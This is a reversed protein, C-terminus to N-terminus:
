YYFLTVHLLQGSVAKLGWLAEESGGSTKNSCLRAWESIKKWRRRSENEPPLTPHNCYLSDPEPLSFYKSYPRECSFCFVFLVFCFTSAASRSVTSCFYVLRAEM